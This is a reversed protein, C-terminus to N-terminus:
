NVSKSPNKRERVLLNGTTTNLSKLYEKILTDLESMSQAQGIFPYELDELYAIKEKPVNTTSYIITPIFIEEYALDYLMLLGELRNEVNEDLFRPLGLDSIMFDYHQEKTKSFAEVVSTVIDYDTIGFEKLIFSAERQKYEMDDVILVKM